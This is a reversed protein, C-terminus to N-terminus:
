PNQLDHRPGVQKRSYFATRGTKELIDFIQNRAPVTALTFREYGHNRIWLKITFNNQVAEIKILPAVHPRIVFPQLVNVNHDHM